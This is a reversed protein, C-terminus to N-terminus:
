DLNGPLYDSGNVQKECVTFPIIVRFTTKEYPVSEFEVKGGHEEVIRATSYLGLGPHGVKESPAWKTSYFPKFIKEEIEEPIGCGNDTLEFVISENISQTFILILGRETKQLAELSNMGLNNVIQFCECERICIKPISFDLNLRIDASPIYSPHNKVQDVWEVIVSNLNVYGKSGSFTWRGIHLNDLLQTLFTSNRNISDLLKILHGQRSTYKRGEHKEDRTIPAEYKSQRKLEGSLAAIDHKLFYLPTEMSHAVSQSLDSLRARGRLEKIIKEKQFIIRELSEIYKELNKEDMACL